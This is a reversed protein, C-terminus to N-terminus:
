KDTESARAIYAIRDIMYVRTHTETHSHIHPIHTQTQTHSHIYM